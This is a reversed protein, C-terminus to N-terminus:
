VAPSLSIDSQEVVTGKSIARIIKWLEEIEKEKEAKFQEFERVRNVYASYGSRYESVYAALSVVKVKNVQAYETYLRDLIRIIVDRNFTKDFDEMEISIVTLQNGEFAQEVVAGMTNDDAFLAHDAFSLGDHNMKTSIVMSKAGLSRSYGYWDDSGLLSEADYSTDNKFYAMKTDTIGKEELKQRLLLAKNVWGESEGSFMVSDVDTESVADLLLDIDADPIDVDLVFTFPYKYPKLTEYVSNFEDVNKAKVTLAIAAYEMNASGVDAKKKSIEENIQHIKTQYEVLAENIGSTNQNNLETNKKDLSMLFGLLVFIFVSVIVSIKKVM